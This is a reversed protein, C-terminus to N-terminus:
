LEVTAALLKVRGSSRISVHTHLHETYPAATNETHSATTNDTYCWPLVYLKDIFDTHLKFYEYSHIYSYDISVILLFFYFYFIFM